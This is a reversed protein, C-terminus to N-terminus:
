VAATLDAPVGVGAHGVRPSPVTAAAVELTLVRDLRSRRLLRQLRDSVDRLVLGRGVRGARRHTGVLVGLGTADVLEVGSLDLVLSGTGRDVAAHLAARVDAVTTVDLRGGLVVLTGREDSTIQM